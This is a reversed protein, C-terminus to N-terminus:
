KTTLKIIREIEQYLRVIEQYLRIIDESVQGKANDASQKAIQDAKDTQHDTM